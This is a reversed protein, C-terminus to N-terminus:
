VRPDRGGPKRCVIQAMARLPEELLGEFSHIVEWDAFWGALEGPQLLYHPNRPVGYKPQESTFTEYVLIGGRRMALRIHRILPRHLYRFVLIGRYHEEELPTGGAELDVERFVPKLGREAASRRAEALAAASRDALVVPLGLQALYLGNEGAGCALDLVPGTLRDDEFLAAFQTLLPNPAM